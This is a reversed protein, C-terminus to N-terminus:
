VTYLLIQNRIPRYVHASLCSEDPNRLYETSQKSHSACCFAPSSVVLHSKRHCSAVSEDQCVCVAQFLKFVREIGCHQLSKGSSRPM